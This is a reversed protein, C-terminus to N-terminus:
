KLRLSLSWNKFIDVSCTEIPSLANLGKVLSAQREDSIISCSEAIQAQAAETLGTGKVESM